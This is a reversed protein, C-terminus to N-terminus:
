FPLSEAAKLPRDSHASFFVPVTGEIYAAIPKKWM